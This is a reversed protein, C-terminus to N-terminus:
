QARTAYNHTQTHIHRQTETLTYTHTSPTSTLMFLFPGGDCCGLDQRPVQRPGHHESLEVTVLYMTEM